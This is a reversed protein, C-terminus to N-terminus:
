IEDEEALRELTREIADIDGDGWEFDLSNALEQRDEARWGGDYLSRAVSDVEDADMPDVHDRAFFTRVVNDDFDWMSPDGLMNDVDAEDEPISYGFVICGSDYDEGDDHRVLLCQQREYDGDNLAIATGTTFTYGKITTTM